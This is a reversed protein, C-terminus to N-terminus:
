REHKGRAAEEGDSADGLGDGQAAGYAVRAEERGYRRLAVAACVLVVVAVGALMAWPLVSVRDGTQATGGGSQASSSGSGSGGAGDVAPPVPDDPTDPTDPTDPEDPVDPGGGVYANAFSVPAAEGGDMKRISQTAALRGGVDVVSVTVAYSGADYEVGALPSSADEFVVYYYTGVEGFSLPAFAFSGDAANSTTLAPTIGASVSFSEDTQYLDFTFEGAELARGSLTKSGSVMATADAPDYVNAFALECSEAPKGGDASVLASVAGDLNDEVSIELMRKSSDYVVGVAGENAERVTYKFTHGVDTADFTLSLSTKGLPDTPESTQVVRGSEDLLEFSFGSADRGQGSLDSMSKSIGVEVVASGEPAYRSRFLADVNGDADVKTNTTQGSVAQVELFGDMDADGVTVDFRSEPFDHTLGDVNGDVERIRFTHTGPEDFAEACALDTFDFSISQPDPVMITHGPNNPDDREVLHCTITKEGVPVWEGNVLRELRYTFSDGEQWDRGVLEKSGTVAFNAQAAEPAYVNTFDAHAAEGKAITATQTAQGGKVSFGASVQSETVTAITGEPINPITVASQAKVSLSIVGKGDAKYSGFAKNANGEGLDVTFSFTTNDNDPVAYGEGFSHEVAKSITLSGVPELGSIFTNAFTPTKTVIYALTGGAASCLLLAVSVVLVVARAGKRSAFDALWSM